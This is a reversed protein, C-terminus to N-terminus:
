PLLLGEIGVAGLVSRMLKNAEKGFAIHPEDEEVQLIDIKEGVGLEEIVFNAARLGTVYAREQLCHLDPNFQIKACRPLSGLDWV